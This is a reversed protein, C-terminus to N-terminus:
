FAFFWTLLVLALFFILYALFVPNALYPRKEVGDPLESDFEQNGTKDKMVSRTSFYSFALIALVIVLLVILWGGMTYESRKAIVAIKLM